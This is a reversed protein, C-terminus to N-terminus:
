TRARRLKAARKEVPPEGAGRPGPAALRRIDGGSSSAALAAPEPGGRQEFSDNDLPDLPDRRNRRDRPSHASRRDLSARRDIPKRRDGETRRDSAAPDKLSEFWWGHECDYSLDLVDDLWWGHARDYEWVGACYVAANDDLFYVDIAVSAQAAPKATHVRAIAFFVREDDGYARWETDPALHRACQELRSPLESASWIRTTWRRPLFRSALLDELCAGPGPGDTTITAPMM